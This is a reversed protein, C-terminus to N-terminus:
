MDKVNSLLKIAKQQQAIVKMMDLQQNSIQLLMEELNKCKNQRYIVEFIEDQTSNVRSAEYVEQNEDEYEELYEEETMQETNEITEQQELQRFGSNGMRIEELFKMLRNRPGIPLKMDVLDQKSLLPLDEMTVHNANFIPLFQDMSLKKLIELLPNAEETELNLTSSLKNEITPTEFTHISDYASQPPSDSYQKFDSNTSAPHPYRKPSKSRADRLQKYRVAPRHLISKGAELKGEALRQSNRTQIKARSLNSM